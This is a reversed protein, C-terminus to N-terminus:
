VPPRNLDIGTIILGNRMLTQLQEVTDKSWSPLTIWGVELTFTLLPQVKRIRESVPPRRAQLLHLLAHQFGERPTLMGYFTFHRLCPLFYTEEGTDSSTTAPGLLETLIDRLSTSGPMELRIDLDTLTSIGRIFEILNSEEGKFTFDYLKLRTLKCGMADLLAPLPPLPGRYPDSIELTDLSPADLNSFLLTMHDWMYCHIRLHTLFPLSIAQPEVRRTQDPLITYIKCSELRSVRPLLYFCEDLYVHQAKLRRLQKWPIDVDSIYYGNLHVDILSPADAFLDLHKRKSPPLRCDKWLSQTMLITLFRLNQKIGALLPYWAEPLVLNACYWRPATTVLFDVLQTPLRSSWDNEEQFMLNITLPLDGSRTLHDQLLEIQTEYRSTILYLSIRSWIMPTSWVITRWQSCISGLFFPSIIEKREDESSFQHADHHCTITFIYAMLELPLNMAPTPTTLPPLALAKDVAVDPSIQEVATRITDLSERLEDLALASEVYDDGQVKIIKRSM